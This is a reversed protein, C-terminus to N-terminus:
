KHVVKELLSMFAQTQQQQQQILINQMQQQQQIQKQQQEMMAQMVQAQQTQFLAQQEKEQKKLELEKVKAANDQDAKFRLYEITENSNKRKAVSKEKDGNAQKRKKTQAFTEMATQRIDEATEKSLELKQNKEAIATNQMEVSASELDCIEELLVDLETREPSTGTSNEERQNKRKYKSILNKLHDRVSRKEVDFTPQTISNLNAAITDWVKGREFSSKRTEFLKSVLVERCFAIDHEKSWFM